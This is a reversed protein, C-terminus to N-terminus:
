FRFSVGVVVHHTNFTTDADRTGGATDFSFSPSVHTFRYESFIAINGEVRLLVGLRVDAGVDVTTDSVERFSGLDGDLHTVFLGPGVGVYPHLRGDPFDADKLLTLRAMLLASIPIVQIDDQPGFYSADLALGLWPISEFWRGVRLGPNVSSGYLEDQSTTPGATTTSVDTNQTVSAGLYIDAFWEGAASATRPAVAVLILLCVPITLSRM